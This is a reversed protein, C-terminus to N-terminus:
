AKVALAIDLHDNIILTMKAKSTIERFKLALEYVEKKSRDKERLQVIRAGAKALEKLTLVASGNRCFRETIVPYINFAPLVM